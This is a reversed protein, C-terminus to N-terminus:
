NDNGWIRKSVLFIQHRLPTPFTVRFGSNIRNNIVNFNVELILIRIELLEQSQIDIDGDRQVLDFLEQSGARPPIRRGNNEYWNEIVRLIEFDRDDLGDENNIGNFFSQFRDSDQWIVRHDYRSPENIYGLMLTLIRHFKEHLRM